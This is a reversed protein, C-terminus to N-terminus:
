LPCASSTPWSTQAKIGSSGNSCIVFYSNTNNVQRELRAYLIYRTACATGSACGGDSYYYYNCLGTPCVALGAKPDSSCQTLGLDNCVTPNTLTQIARRPYFGGNRNAYAELATSYQKLDSKRQADRSTKQVGPYKVMTFTALTGIVSMVILLELMSLGYKLKNNAEMKLM